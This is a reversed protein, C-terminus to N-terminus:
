YRIMKMFGELLHPAQTKLLEIICPRLQAFIEDAVKNGAYSGITGLILKYVRKKGLPQDSKLAEFDAKIKATLEEFENYLIEEGVKLEDLKYLIDDLKNNLDIFEETSFTNKDFKYNFSSALNYLFFQLDEITEYYDEDRVKVSRAEGINSVFKHTFKEKSKLQVLHLLLESLLVLKYDLEDYEYIKGRVINKVLEINEEYGKSFMDISGEDLYTNIITKAEKIVYNSLSFDPVPIKIFEM